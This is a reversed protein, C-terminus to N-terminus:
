NPNHTTKLLSNKKLRVINNKLRFKRRKKARFCIHLFSALPPKVFLVGSEFRNFFSFTGGHGCAAPRSPSKQCAPSAFRARIENGSAGQFCFVRRTQRRAM